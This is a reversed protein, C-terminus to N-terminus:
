PARCWALRTMGLRVSKVPTVDRMRRGSMRSREVRVSGKRRVNGNITCRAAARVRGNQWPRARELVRCLSLTQAGIERLLERWGTEVDAITMPTQSSALRGERGAQFVRTLPQALDAILDPAYEM